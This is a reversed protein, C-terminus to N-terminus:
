WNDQQTKQHLHENGLEELHLISAQDSAHFAKHQFLPSYIPIM